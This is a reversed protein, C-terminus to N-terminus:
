FEDRAPTCLEVLELRVASGSQVRGCVIPCLLLGEPTASSSGTTEFYWGGSLPDCDSLSRVYSIRQRDHGSILDLELADPDVMENPLTAQCAVVTESITQLAQGLATGLNPQRPDVIVAAGTGGSEALQEAISRGEEDAFIGLAFTPVSLPPAAMERLIEFVEEDTYGDCSTPKGDTVLIQVLRREPASARASAVAGRSGSLAAVLPTNGGPKADALGSIAQAVYTLDSSMEVVLDEYPGPRCTAGDGGQGTQPNRFVENFSRCQAQSDGRLSRCQDPSVCGHVLGAISGGALAQLVTAIPPGGDCFREACSFTSNCRRSNDCVCAGGRCLGSACDQDGACPEFACDPGTCAACFGIADNPVPDPGAAESPARPFTQIGVRSGPELDGVFRELEELALTYRTQTGAEEDMSGSRDIFVAFDVGRLSSALSLETREEECRGPPDGPPLSGADPPSAPPADRPPETEVPDPVRYLVEEDCAVFGGLCVIGWLVPARAM